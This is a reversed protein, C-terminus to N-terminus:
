DPADATEENPPNPANELWSPSSAASMETQTLLFPAHGTLWDADIIGRSAWSIRLTRVDATTARRLCDRTGSSGNRHFGVCVLVGSDVMEQNRRHGAFPCWEHGNRQQRHDPECEPACPGNWHAPHPEQTVPWGNRARTHVWSAALADGGSRAKGHVVVLQQGHSFAERTYHALVADVSPLHNWDRSGTILLRM